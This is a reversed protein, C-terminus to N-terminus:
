PHSRHESGDRADGGVAADDVQEDLHELGRYYPLVRILRLVEDSGWNLQDFDLKRGEVLSAFICQYLSQVMPRDTRGNTFHRNDLELKFDQPTM